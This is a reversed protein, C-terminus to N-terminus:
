LSKLISLFKKVDYPKSIFGSISSSLGQKKIEKQVFPRGSILIIKCKLGLKDIRKLFDVGNLAPMKYDLLIIDYPNKKILKEGELGDSVAQVYYGEATLFDVMEESLEQDDDILLIRRKVSRDKRQYIFLSRLAWM